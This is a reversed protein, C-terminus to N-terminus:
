SRLRTRQPDYFPFPVVHARLRKQHHDLQGIEVARGEEAYDRDLRCLAVTKKLLPSRVCSTVVGIEARGVFIPDGHQATENGALELGALRFRGQEKRKVLADRGVFADTKSKLPVTFGIGAEFPDTTGDFEAHAMVLGAEVRLMEMAELGCPLIGVGAGAEAVADWVAPADGSHCFIEYGLEGTYGTRSVVVPIGGFGGLRAVSFRFCGLEALPTEDDRTWVIEELIRRSEPGQVSLNALAETSPRVWAKFGNEEALRRLWVGCYADACVWRFLDDGMRFLTGDDIMGGTEHCMASYVVEGVSMRRVNRTLALIMLAEADPGTVEFKHLSSLDMMVAKERCAHYEAVAGHNRYTAPLWVEGAEVYHATLASTKEHFPTQRTLSPKAEPTMRVAVSRSFLNKAGYTRVHIDTPNWGNAPDLDNPCSTTLCVCDTLARLLVYDGPRSWAEDFSLANDHEARSNFFFNVAEWGARPAVGYPTLRANINDTCNVHGPYGLEEYFRAFCALGFTDHRGVTDRIVEFMPEQAVNFFRSHLGPAPYAAGMLSRTTTHHIELERGADLGRLTLAQFDSCQRGSVDIIQIYDGARVEYSVATSHPVHIEQLPDALPEPLAMLPSATPDARRTLLEVRSPAHAGCLSMAPAPAAILCLGDEVAAFGAVAGPAPDDDFVRRVQRGAPDLQMRRAMGRLAALAAGDFRESGQGSDFVAMRPEGSLPELGAPDARGAATVFLLECPQGGEIAVLHLHDGARLSVVALARSVIEDREIGQQWLSIGPEVLHHWRSTQTDYISM